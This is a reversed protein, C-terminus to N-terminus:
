NWIVEQQKDYSRSLLLAMTDTCSFHPGLLCLLDETFIKKHPVDAEPNQVPINRVFTVGGNELVQKETFQVLQKGDSSDRLLICSVNWHESCIELGQVLRLFLWENVDEDWDELWIHLSVPIRKTAYKGSFSASVPIYLKSSGKWRVLCCCWASLNMNVSWSHFLHEFAWFFERASTLWESECQWRKWNLKGQSIFLKM